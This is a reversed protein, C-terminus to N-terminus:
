AYEARRRKGRWFKLFDTPTVDFRWGSGAGPVVLTLRAVRRERLAQALPAFWRAELEQLRTQWAEGDHSASPCAPAVFWIADRECDPHRSSV